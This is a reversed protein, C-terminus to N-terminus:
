QGYHCEEPKTQNAECASNADPKDMPCITENGCKGDGDGCKIDAVAGRWMNDNCTYLATPQCQGCCCYYDSFYHNGM